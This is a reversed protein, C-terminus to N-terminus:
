LRSFLVPHSMPLLVLINIYDSDFDISTPHAVGLRGTQCVLLRVTLCHALRVTLRDSLIVARCYSLTVTTVIQNDPM